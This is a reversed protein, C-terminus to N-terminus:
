AHGATKMEGVKRDVGQLLEKASQLTHDSLGGLMQALERLRDEGQLEYVNIITRQDVVKKSVQYHQQGFSALQPLHTICIVQHGETLRRLKEGVVAGVRGGIGQDIEDFVLTAIHDAKALVHKVALMLRATEGGSAIKALPKFGEGPNTEILFEVEELGNLTFKVRRNPAIQVGHPDPTQQFDVRFRSEAMRLDDLESELEEELREAASRRSESLKKGRQALEELLEKERGELEEIKASRDTITKLEERAERAHDIVDPITEGYKRKLDRILALREEVRELERPEFELKELYSRLTLNLAEIGDSVEQTEEELDALSPDTKVMSEIADVFQGFLDTITPHSPPADELLMLAKQCREALKEANALRQMQESLEEDEGEVLNAAEIENVQFELLELRREAERDLEKLQRIESQIQRLKQYANQYSGLVEENGAYRDLLGLHQNVRLLSLHDSQGHIDVLYEGLQVLLGVNARHGNVRAVNRRDRRLERSLTVYERDDLMDERDLLSTIPEKVAEPIRFVAEVTARDSGSRLHTMDVRQGLLMDLAGMIISKGAGTEGTLVILGPEFLLDLEHIIAFNEIHLERLM